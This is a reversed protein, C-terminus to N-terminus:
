SNEYNSVIYNEIYSSIEDYLKQDLAGSPSIRSLEFQATLWDGLIVRDTVSRLINEIEFIESSTKNGERMEKVLSASISDYYDQGDMRYKDYTEKIHNLIALDTTIDEYDNGPSVSSWVLPEKMENGSQITKTLEDFYIYKWLKM